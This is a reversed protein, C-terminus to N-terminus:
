YTMLIFWWLNGLLFRLVENMLRMFTSPANTLGFPMVLWEYLGFKTKFATKWEDGLKMRIQHYGSRLDIKTFMVSGSLEDLMNDLRPIPHRITKNNIARCDVCMRWTGNKKPVLIVPVACPSLSERVYGHDLLEQVQRQIEKAEEPNTRYAARNPLTAGPILDIQHEIGRLPPLGPPIEAPFVDKFEQLLNAVAPPLSPPMDDLSFLVRKCLLAYGFVDDFASAALDSKIALMAGDKLKIAPSGTPPISPETKLPVISKSAQQNESTLAKDREATKAIARDCKVIEAPTLPLLTIKKGKHVFTYTNTRGHHRADTDFEWPRGLLLSCAQMPVVDCDAYDHYTGLSFHVRATHTVKAKGSNNLWQIHYPHTHACTSLGFKKVFDASVLNNCSGGDIITRVRCKNIIFYIQFLNHRQLKDEHEVQASLVRQVIYTGNHTYDEAKRM